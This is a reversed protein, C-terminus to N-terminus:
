MVRLYPVAIFHCKNLWHHHIQGMQTSVKICLHVFILLVKVSSLHWHIFSINCMSLTAIFHCESLWHIDCQSMQKTARILVHICSWSNRSQLCFETFVRYMASSYCAVIFHCKNLFHIDSRGMQRSARFWVYNCSWYYCPPGFRCHVCTVNCLFLVGCHLSM